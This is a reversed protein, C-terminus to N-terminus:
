LRSTVQAIGGEPRLRYLRAGDGVIRDGGLLDSAEVGIERRQDIGPDGHV